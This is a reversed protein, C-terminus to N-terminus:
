CISHLAKATPNFFNHSKNLLIVIETHLFCLYGSDIQWTRRGEMWLCKGLLTTDRCEGGLEVIRPEEAKGLSPLSQLPGWKEALVQARGRSASIWQAQVNAQPLIWTRISEINESEPHRSVKTILCSKRNEIFFRIKWASNNWTIAWFELWM